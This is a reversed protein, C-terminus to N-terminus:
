RSETVHVLLTRTRARTTVTTTTNTPFTSTTALSGGVLSFALGLGLFPSPWSLALFSLSRFFSHLPWLYCCCCCCDTLRLLTGRSRPRSLFLTPHCHDQFFLYDDYCDFVYLSLSARLRLPFIQQAGTKQAMPDPLPLLPEPLRETMRIKANRSVTHM